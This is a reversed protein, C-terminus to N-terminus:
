NCVKLIYEKAKSKGLESAKNWDLCAGKEDKFFYKIGGRNFYADAFDNNLEIAKSYDDLAGHYNELRDKM